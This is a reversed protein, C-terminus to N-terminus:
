GDGKEREKGVRCARMAGGEVVRRVMGNWSAAVDYWTRTGTSTRETWTVGSDTSTYLYGGEVAAVLFQPTPHSPHVEALLGSLRHVCQSPWGFRSGGSGCLGFAGHRRIFVRYLAMTPQCWFHQSAADLDGGLGNVHLRFWRFGRRRTEQLHTPQNTRHLPDTRRRGLSINSALYVVIEERSM